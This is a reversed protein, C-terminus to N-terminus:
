APLQALHLVGFLRSTPVRNSCRFRGPKRGRFSQSTGGLTLTEDNDLKNAQMELDAARAVNQNLVLFRLAIAPGSVPLM